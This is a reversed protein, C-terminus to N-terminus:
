EVEGHEIEEKIKLTFVYEQQDKEPILFKQIKYYGSEAKYIFGKNFFYKIYNGLGGNSLGLRARVDRRNDTSFLNKEEEYCYYDMFAALVEIEKPTLQVPLLSNIISLHMRNYSEQPLIVTKKITKM